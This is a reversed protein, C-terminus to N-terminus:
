SQHSYTLTNIYEPVKICHHASPAAPPAIDRPMWRVDVHLHVDLYSIPISLYSHTLRHPCRYWPTECSNARPMWLDRCAVAKVGCSPLNISSTLHLLLLLMWYTLSYEKCYKKPWEYSFFFPTRLLIEIHKLVEMRFHTMALWYIVSFNNQSKCQHKQKCSQSFVM